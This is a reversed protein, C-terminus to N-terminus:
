SLNAQGQRWLAGSAHGGSGPESVSENNKFLGISKYESASRRSTSESANM